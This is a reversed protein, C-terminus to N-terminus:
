AAGPIVSVGTFRSDLIAFEGVALDDLASQLIVIKM